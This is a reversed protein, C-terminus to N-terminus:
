ISHFLSHILLYNAYEMEDWELRSVPSVVSSYCVEDPSFQLLMAVVPLLAEVEGVKMFGM